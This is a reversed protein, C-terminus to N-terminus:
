LRLRGRARTRRFFRWLEDVGWVLFPFVILPLLHSAPPVAMGFVHQLPPLIVVLAAFVLEFLIGWLLL